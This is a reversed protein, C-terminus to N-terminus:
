DEDQNKQKSRRLRRKKQKQTKSAKKERKSSEGETQEKLKEILMRRAFFRNAERAREKSCRVAIGSPEHKLWVCSSSKNVKQGGKGSSHIFKETLDKEYIQLREMEEELELRKKDSIAM